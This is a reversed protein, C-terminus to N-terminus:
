KQNAINGTMSRVEDAAQQLRDASTNLAGDSFYLSAMEILAQIHEPLNDM